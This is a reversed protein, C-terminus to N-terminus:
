NVSIKFISFIPKQKALRKKNYYGGLEVVALKSVSPHLDVYLNEKM